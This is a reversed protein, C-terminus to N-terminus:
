KDPKLKVPIKSTIPLYEFAIASIIGTGDIESEDIIQQSYSYKYFNNVPMYYYNSGTGAIMASLGHECITTFEVVDSYESEDETGCVAKVRVTYNTSAQLNNLLAYTTDVSVSTWTADGEAMYEVAYAAQDYNDTWNVAATHDSVESVTLQAPVFCTPITEVLINDIFTYNYFDTSTYEAPFDKTARFAIYGPDGAYNAM